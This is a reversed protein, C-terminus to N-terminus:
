GGSVKRYILDDYMTGGIEVDQKVVEACHFGSKLLVRESADNGQTVNAQFRKIGCNDAFELLGNLSETAYGRGSAEPAIMYGLEAVDNQLYFGTLGVRQHTSIEQLILCLWFDSAPTWQPLRSEFRERIQTETRPNFSYKITTSDTQLFHFFDWDTVNIQRMILRQTQLQITVKIIGQDEIDVTHKSM